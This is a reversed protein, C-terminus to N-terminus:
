WRARAQSPRSTMRGHNAWVRYRGPALGDFAFAGQADATTRRLPLKGYYADQGNPPPPLLVVEPARSRRAAVRSSAARSGVRERRRLSVSPRLIAADAPSAEVALKPSEPRGASPGPHIMALGLVLAAAGAALRRGSRRDLPGHGRTEDFMARLRGELVNTRAMAINMSLRPARASRAMELLQSAYETPREGALVVDDDCAQECEVRLRHLAYWALPHFWYIAAALRGVLQVGADLRRIHALEHLLM